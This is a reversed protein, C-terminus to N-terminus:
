PPGITDVGEEFLRRVCTPLMLAGLHVDPNYYRTSIGREAMRQALARRSTKRCDKGTAGWALAFPGGFYTPQGCLDVRRVSPRKLIECLLGGDSGGVILVRKPAELSPLATHAMTEHYICEDRTSLQVVGDILLLRGFDGSELIVIHQHASRSGHLIEAAELRARWHKHLTEEVWRAM